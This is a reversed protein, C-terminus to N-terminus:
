KEKILEKIRSEMKQGIEENFGVVHFRIHGQKDLIFVSPISRVGYKKATDMTGLLIPYSVNYKSLFGRLSDKEKRDFSVGLVVLGKEKYAEYLSVLHPVARRCPPCGISWFDLLVVKGRFDKLTKTGGNLADLTFDAATEGGAKSAPKKSNCFAFSMGVGLMLVVFLLYKVVTKPFFRKNKRRV